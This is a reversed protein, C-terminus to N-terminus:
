IVNNTPIVAELMKGWKVLVKRMVPLYEYRDYSIHQVGSLGHSLLQARLGQDVKMGVMLTEGTRRLDRLQFPKDIDGNVLMATCVSGVYKGLTDARLVAKRSVPFLYESEVLKARKICREIIV